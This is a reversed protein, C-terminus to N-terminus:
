RNGIVDDTKGNLIPKLAPAKVEVYAAVM